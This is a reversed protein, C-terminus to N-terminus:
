HYLVRSNVTHNYTRTRGRSGIRAMSLVENRRNGGLGIPCTYEIEAESDKINIRRIFSNLFAKRSMISGENLTSRLDEVYAIVTEQSPKQFTGALPRNSNLLSIKAAITEKEGNLERLRPAVDAVNLASSEILKYHRALKTEIESMQNRLTARKTESEAEGNELEECVMCVLKTLIEKTLLRDKITDVICPELKEANLSKQSCSAKGEKFKRQCGYYIFKGSKATSAIMKAGCQACFVLGSLLHQSAVARPHSKMEPAREKLTRQVHEFAMREVLPAHHNPIRVIECEPNLVKLGNSKNYRNWIYTGTYTENKLLYLVLNKNWPKGQRNCFGDANLREAVRKAGEGQLFLDFARKVVPAEEENLEIVRKKVGNIDKFIARYGYSVPAGNLFGRQANEKMGRRTDQGLNASYFEDISEIM